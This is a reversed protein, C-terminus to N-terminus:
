FSVGYTVAVEREFPEIEPFKYHLMNYEAIFYMSAGLRVGAGFGSHPKYTPGFTKTVKEAGTVETELIRQTATVGAKARLIFISFSPDVVVSIKANRQTEIIKIESAPDETSMNLDTEYDIEGYEDKATQTKETTTVTSQGASLQLSFLRFFSVGARLGAEQRQKVKETETANKKNPKVSKTSKISVYPGVTVGAEAVGAFALLAGGLVLQQIRSLM